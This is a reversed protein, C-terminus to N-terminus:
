PAPAPPVATAPTRASRRHASRRPRISERTQRARASAPRAAARQSIRHRRRRLPANRRGNHQHSAVLAAVPFFAQPRGNRDMASFLPLRPRTRPRVSAGRPHGM